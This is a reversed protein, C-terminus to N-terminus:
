EGRERWAARRIQLLRSVPAPFASPFYCPPRPSDVTRAGPQRPAPRCAPLERVALVRAAATAGLVERCAGIAREIGADDVDLHAIARVRRPGYASMRVGREALKAVVTKADPAPAALDVFVINTDPAIVRAGPAEAFVEALRKARRHDDALRAVHHDLAHLCAAALIGVQRM